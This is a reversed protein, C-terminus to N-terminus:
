RKESKRVIITALWGTQVVESFSFVVFTLFQQQVCQFDTRVLQICASRGAGAAGGSPTAGGGGVDAQAAFAAGFDVAVADADGCSGSALVVIANTDALHHGQVPAACPVQLAHADLVLTLKLTGHWSSALPALCALRQTKTFM